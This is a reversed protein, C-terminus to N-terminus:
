LEENKVAVASGTVALRMIHNEDWWYPERAFVEDMYPMFFTLPLNPYAADFSAQDYKECWEVLDSYWEHDKYMDRADKSGGFHEFYYYGQFIEHKELMWVTKPSLFPELLAGAARGHNKPVMSETIDHLLSMVIIDAPQNDRLARSATQLGHQYLDVPQGLFTNGRQRFLLELVKDKASITNYEEGIREFDLKSATALSTFARMYPFKRQDQSHSYWFGDRNAYCGQLHRPKDSIVESRSHLVRKNDFLIMQGPTLYHKVVYKDSALMESFKRKAAFFKDSKEAPSIIPVYGGSKASFRIANICEAYNCPANGNGTTQLEIIPKNSVLVGGNEPDGGNNEWRVAVETLLKFAEPDVKKLERAVFFGDVFLNHVNCNACPYEGNACVCGAIQHLFQYDPMPERYPNDTHLGIGLSTYALDNKVVDKGVDPVTKVNFEKGWETDRQTSISSVFETCFGEKKPTNVLLAIGTTLMDLVLKERDNEQHLLEYDYLPPAGLNADWLYTNSMHIPNAQIPANRGDVIEALLHNVPYFSNIGSDFLVDFGNKEVDFNIKKLQTAGVIHADALPQRSDVDICEKAQCRERLWDGSIKVEEKTDNLEHVIRLQEERFEWEFLTFKSSKMPSKFLTRVEALEAVVASPLLM